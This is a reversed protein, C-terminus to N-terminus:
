PGAGRREAPSRRASAQLFAVMDEMEGEEFKPWPMGFEAMVEHMQPAHNWVAASLGISDDGAHLKTLDPAQGTGAEHCVSCGNKRFVNAGGSADGPRGRYSLFYLYSIVDALEHERFRPFARGERRMQGHMAYSHNWLVGSIQGVTMRIAAAGGAM